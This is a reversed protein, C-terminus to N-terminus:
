GACADAHAPLALADYWRADPLLVDHRQIGRREFHRQIANSVRQTQSAYVTQASLTWDIQNPQLLWNTGNFYVRCIAVQTTAPNALLAQSLFLVPSAGTATDYYLYYWNAASVGTICAATATPTITRWLGGATISVSQGANPPVIALGAGGSVTNQTLVGTQISPSVYKTFIDNLSAQGAAPSVLTPVIRQAAVSQGGVTVDAVAGTAYKANMIDLLNAPTGVNDNGQLTTQSLGTAGIVM